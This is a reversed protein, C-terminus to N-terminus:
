EVLAVSHLGNSAGGPLKAYSLFNPNGALTLTKVVFDTYLTGGPTGQMTVSANPAYFIGEITANSSGQLTLTATDAPVQYYLLGPFTATALYGASTSDKADTIPAVMDLNPSGNMTITSNGTFIMTDGVANVTGGAQINLPGNVFFFVGGGSSNLTLTAQSGVTTGGGLDYCGPNLTTTGKNPVSFTSCPVSMQSSSIPNNACIAATSPCTCGANGTGTACTYPFENSAEPDSAATAGGVPQPSFDAYNKGQTIAGVVGISATTVTGGKGVEQVANNSDSAVNFACDPADIFPSGQVTLDTGTTGLTYVCGNGAGMNTAVARALVTVSPFGFLSLFITPEPKSITVEIYNSVGKYNSYQWTPGNEADVFAGNTGNTYGYSTAATTAANKWNSTAINLAGAIAAADAATQIDRKDKFLAGIDTAIGVFGLMLPLSLAVLIITQGREDRHLRM